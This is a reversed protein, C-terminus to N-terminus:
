PGCGSVAVSPRGCAGDVAGASPGVSCAAYSCVPTGAHRCGACPLLQGHKAASTLHHAAVLCLPLGFSALEAVCRLPSLPRHLTSAIRPLLAPGYSSGCIAANIAGFTAKASFGHPPGASGEAKVSVPPASFGPSQMVLQRLVDLSPVRPMGGEGPQGAEPLSAPVNNAGASGSALLQQAQQQLQSPEYQQNAALNTASPIRKLFEQFAAESDTRGFAAGAQGLRFIGGVLDDVSFSRNMPNSEAMASVSEALSTYGRACTQSATAFATSSAFNPVIHLRTPKAPSSASHSDTDEDAGPKDHNLKTHHQEGVLLLVQYVPHLHKM